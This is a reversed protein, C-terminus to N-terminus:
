FNIYVISCTLMPKETISISFFTASFLFTCMFKANFALKTMTWMMYIPESCVQSFEIEEGMMICEAIQLVIHYLNNSAHIFAHFGM